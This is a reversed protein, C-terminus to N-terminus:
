GQSCAPTARQMTPTAEERGQGCALHVRQLKPPDGEEEGGQSCAPTACPRTPTAGREGTQARNAHASPHPTRGEGGDWLRTSPARAVMDQPGGRGGPQVSYARAALHPIGGEKGGKTAARTLRARCNPPAGSRTGDEQMGRLLLAHQRTEDGTDTETWLQDAAGRISKHGAGRVRLGVNAPGGATEEPELIGYKRRLHMGNKPRAGDAGDSQRKQPGASDNDTETSRQPQPPTATRTGRTM